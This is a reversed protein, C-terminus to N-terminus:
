PWKVRSSGDRRCLKVRSVVLGMLSELCVCARACILLVLRTARRVLYLAAMYNGRGVKCRPTPDRTSSVLAFCFIYKGWAFPCEAWGPMYDLVCFVLGLGFDIRTVGRQKHPSYM